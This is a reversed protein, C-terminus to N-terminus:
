RNLVQGVRFMADSLDDTAKNILCNSCGARIKYSGSALGRWQYSGTNPVAVDYQIPDNKSDLLSLSIKDEPWNSTKWRVIFQTGTQYYEGGNPSIVTISAKSSSTFKLTSLIHNFYEEEKDPSIIGPLNFYTRYDGNISNFEAIYRRHIVLTQTSSITIYYIDEGCGEVGSSIKFGNLTGSTFPNKSVYDWSPNTNGQVFDKLNQNVVKLSINFDEFRDLPLATGKFDCPNAHRYPISHSLSITGGDLKVSTLAPYEFSISADSYKKWDSTNTQLSVPKEQVPSNVPNNQTSTQQIQNSQQVQIDTTVPIEAKKIEYIYAGGGIVLLAIIAVLAQVVFGGKLNKM